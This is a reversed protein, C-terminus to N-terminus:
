SSDTNNRVLPFHYTSSFFDHVNSVGSFFKLMNGSCQSSARMLHQPSQFPHHPLWAEAGLQSLPVPSVHLAEWVPLLAAGRGPQSISWSAFMQLEPGQQHPVPLTPLFSFISFFFFLSLFFLVILPLVLYLSFYPSFFLLQHPSFFQLM